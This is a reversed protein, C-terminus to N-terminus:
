RVTMLPRLTAGGASWIAKGSADHLVLRTGGSTGPPDVTLSGLANGNADVFALSQTRIEKTVPAQNQAFAIPPSIYRTAIGGILGAVLAVSITLKNNM